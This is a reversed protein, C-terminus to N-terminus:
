ASLEQYVMALGVVLVRLPESSPFAEALAEDLEILYAEIDQRDM